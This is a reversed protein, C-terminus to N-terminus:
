VGKPPRMIGAPAPTAQAGELLALSIDVDKRSVVDLVDARDIGAAELADRLRRLLAEFRRYLPKQELHLARAIDAVALGDQFRLRLILRDQDALEQVAPALARRVRAGIARRGESGIEGDRVAPNQPLTELAEEGVFAPRSRLPLRSAIDALESRVTRLGDNTWLVECAQEFAYGDRSMLRELRIAVQGLRQAEASPRWKGWLRNRHDLFMRQIVVTLYTRLSSRQQFRRLIDYDNDVLRLRVESTFEEAEAPDLRHRQCVFRVVSDVVHLNSMLMAEHSASISLSAPTSDGGAERALVARLRRIPGNAPMVTTKGRKAPPRTAIPGPSRARGVVFLVEAVSNNM